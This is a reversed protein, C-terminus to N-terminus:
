IMSTLDAASFDSGALDTGALDAGAADRDINVPSSSCGAALVLLWWGGWM